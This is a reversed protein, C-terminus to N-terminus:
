EHENVRQIPKLLFLFEDIFGYNEDFIALFYAVKEQGNKLEAFINILCQYTTISYSTDINQDNVGSSFVEYIKETKYKLAEKQIFDLDLEDLSNKSFIDHLLQYSLMEIKQKDM